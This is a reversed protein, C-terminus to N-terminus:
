EGWSKSGRFGRKLVKTEKTKLDILMLDGDYAGGVAIEKNMAPSASIHQAIFSDISDKGKIFNIVEKTRINIVKIYRGSKDTEAYVAITDNDLWCLDQITDQAEYIVNRAKGEIDTLYITAKREMDGYILYQGNPSIRYKVGRRTISSQEKTKLNIIAIKLSEPMEFNMAPELICRNGKADVDFDFEHSDFLKWAAESDKQELEFLIKEKLDNLSMKNITIKKLPPRSGWGTWCSIVKLFLIDNNELFKPYFYEITVNEYEKLYQQALLISDRLKGSGDFSIRTEKAFKIGQIEKNEALVAAELKGSEYFNLYTGKMLKMGQIDQDELLNAYRIKGSEYFVIDTGKAFKLGQIEAPEILRVSKLKGTEYFRLNNGTYKGKTVKIGQIEQDQALKARSLKGSEYFSIDSGKIFKIGQIEQDQSLVVSCPDGSEDFNIGTGKIFKVGKIKHDQTLQASKPKGSEYFHLYNGEVFKIGQIEQDQPLKIYRFKGSNYFQVETGKPFVIGQITTDNDLIEAITRQSLFIAWIMVILVIKKPM